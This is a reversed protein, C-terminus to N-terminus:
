VTFKTLNEQLEQAIEALESSANAIQEMTATQEEVSASAEETGAANEQAIASLNEMVAIIEDKKRAMEEGSQNLNTIVGQMRQIAKDIGDFKNSTQRIGESQAQVAEGVMQMTQVATATKETLKKIITEIESTFQGSQEALKRIEDAVVAFGRGAEGARASEIAANLALLNTQEAISKIMGSATQIQLASENTETIVQSVERAAESSEDTKVVVDKLIALGEQKMEAVENASNNLESVYRQDEEIIQGLASVHTVGQETDKAQDSAGRAIEEITKAVEGAAKATEDSTATLEESTASVQEATTTAKQLFERVNEEMSRLANAMSGIEDKRDAFSLIPSNKDVSFDLNAQKKIAETVVTVPRAISSGVAFALLGGVALMVLTAIILANRLANLGALMEQEEAVTALVWQTGPIEDFGAHVNLNNFFYTGVGSRERLIQQFLDSLPELSADERVAEIPNFQDIVLERRVHAMVTGENSIIYAYGSEGYGLLDVIRSLDDGDRVGYLVGTVQNDTFIPVAYILVPEGTARSILIDAVNSEGALAAQFYDRDAVNVQEGNSRIAEGEEDAIALAQFGTADGEGQLINLRQPLPITEDFIDTRRAIGELVSLQMRIESAVLESGAEAEALLRDDAEHMVTRSSFFVSGFGLSVAILLVLGLTFLAIRRSLNM